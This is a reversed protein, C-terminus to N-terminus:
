RVLMAAMSAEVPIVINESVMMGSTRFAMAESNHYRGRNLRVAPRRDPLRASFLGEWEILM